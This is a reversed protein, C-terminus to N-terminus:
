ATQPFYKGAIFLCLTSVGIFLAVPIVCLLINKVTGYRLSSFILIWATVFLVTSVAYWFYPNLGTFTALQSEDLGALSQYQTWFKVYVAFRVLSLIVALPYSLALWRERYILVIGIYSV